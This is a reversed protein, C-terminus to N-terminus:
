RPPTSALCASSATLRERLVDRGFPMDQPRSPDPCPSFLHFTLPNPLPPKHPTSSPPSSVVHPSFPVGAVCGRCIRAPRSVCTRPPGRPARAGRTRRRGERPHAGRPPSRRRPDARSRREANRRREGPVRDRRGRPPHRGDGSMADSCTRTASGEEGNIRSLSLTASSVPPDEDSSAVPASRARKKAQRWRRSHSGRGNPRVVVGTLLFCRAVMSGKGSDSGGGGRPAGVLIKPFATSYPSAWKPTSATCLPPDRFIGGRTSAFLSGIGGVWTIPEVSTAPADGSRTAPANNHFLSACGGRRWLSRRVRM